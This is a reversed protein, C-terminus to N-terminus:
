ASTRRKVDTALNGSLQWLAEACTQSCLVPCRLPNRTKRWRKQPPKRGRRCVVRAGYKDREWDVVLYPNNRYFHRKRTCASTTGAYSGESTLGRSVSSQDRVVCQALNRLTLPEPWRLLYVSVGYVGGMLFQSWRKGDRVAPFHTNEYQIYASERLFYTPVGLTVCCSPFSPMAEQKKCCCVGPDSCALGRQWRRGAVELM